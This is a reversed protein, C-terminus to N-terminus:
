RPVKSWPMDKDVRPEAPLGLVREGLINRLVESTGGEISNALARLYDYRIDGSGGHVTTFDPRTEAYSSFLLAEPGLFEMALAYIAQNLEAMQLKAVSGEPGPTGRQAADSARQNTLRAAEAKTWLRMLRDLDAAETRGAADAAAFAEVAQGIPGEGRAALRGGLSRRENMLTTMAVSWGGGIEGILCDRPVFVEDLFIENFEAEGTLQRLPRVEVGPASMDAVFYTLGRHKVAEPDTRALLLGWRAVHGLTTWVKQGSVRWGGDVPTARTSLGALDSGAGPESFLQCWIDEGTFLPRLWRQKQEPTGHAHITPAAMGLGIVNKAHWEPCGAASFVEDVIPQLRPALGLGGCGEDFHVFALGEDFRAGRLVRDETEAVPFRSLLDEALSRVRHEDRESV